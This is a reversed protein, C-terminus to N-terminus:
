IEKIKERKRKLGILGSSLIYEEWDLLSQKKTCRLSSQKHGKKSKRNQIKYNINLENMKEELFTWNTNYPGSFSLQRLYHNKNIYYCGDGDFYGHFWAPHFKEPINKLIKSPCTKEKYDMEKLYLFLDKNSCRITSIEKWNERKRSTYSWRGAVDFINKLDLYDETVIELIINYTNKYEYLYGDAWFFGLIYASHSNINEMFVSENINRRKRSNEKLIKYKEISKEM